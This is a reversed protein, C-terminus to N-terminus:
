DTIRDTEVELRHLYEAKMKHCGRAGPRETFRPDNRFREDLDNVFVIAQAFGLVTELAAATEARTAEYADMGLVDRCAYSLILNYVHATVLPDTDPDHAQAPIAALMTVALIFGRM